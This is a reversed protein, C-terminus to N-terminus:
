EAWCIKEMKSIAFLYIFNFVRVRLKRWLDFNLVQIAKFRWDDPEKYPYLEAKKVKSVRTLQPLM